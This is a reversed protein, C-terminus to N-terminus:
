GGVTEYECRPVTHGNGRNVGNRMTARQTKRSEHAGLGNRKGAKM